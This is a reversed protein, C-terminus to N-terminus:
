ISGVYRSLLQRATPNRQVLRCYYLVMLVFSIALVIKPSLGSYQAAVIILGAPITMILHPAALNYVNVFPVHAKKLIAVSYLGHVIAGSISFLALTLLISGLFGGAVLSLLRTTFSLAEFRLEVAQQQLVPLVPNLPVSMFWFFTFPSLIQAYVGAEAWRAGFILVFLDKSILALLMCPFLTAALLYHLANQVVPALDGKLQAAAARPFFARSINAGILAMPLRLLRNGLSYQGVVTTTFFAALLFTPMQWSLANLVSSLVNYQPFRRYRRCAVWMNRPTIAHVIQGSSKALHVCLAASFLGAGALTGTILWGATAHGMTGAVIQTGVMGVTGLVQASTIQGFSRRRTSWADLTLTLACLFVGVPVLAVYPTFEPSKLTNALTRAGFGFLPFALLTVFISIAISLGFVNAAEEEQEPVLIATEYRLCAVVVLIGVLSMFLASVGFAEPAFLRAIVTTALAGLFQSLVTGSALTLLDTAFSRNRTAVANREQAGVKM